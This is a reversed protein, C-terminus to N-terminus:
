APWRPAFASPLLRLTEIHAARIGPMSAAPPRFRGVPYRFDDQDTM